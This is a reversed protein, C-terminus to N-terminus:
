AAGAAVALKRRGMAPRATTRPPPMAAEWLGRAIHWVKAIASTRVRHNWADRGAADVETAIAGYIGAASLVAWRQRFSLRGAGVRASAEYAKEMECLRHALPVLARRYHPKMHEGPPIDAEVLWEMPLYCRQAADDEDLDRAINALQFALGLDCARDLTDEDAPDVGMVVAMMVGVAGAVHYCYRLLEAESRPHWDAADLAFGAIVDDAMARTIGCERAVVGFGDFAPDGTEQGALANATFDRITALREGAGRQDGLQGGMDQADALDDCRRCWAYLLWVRERTTRDFLRSAAAFSKSGRRIADRAAALLRPRPLM